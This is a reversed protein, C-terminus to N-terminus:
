KNKKNWILGCRRHHRQLRWERLDVLSLYPENFAPRKPPASTRWNSKDVLRLDPENVIRELFEALEPLVTDDPAHMAIANFDPVEVLNTPQLQANARVNDLLLVRRLDVNEINSLNKVRQRPQGKIGYNELLECNDSTWVFEFEVVHQLMAAFVEYVYVPLGASWLALRYHKAVHVLFSELFPRPFVAFRAVTKLLEIEIVRCTPGMLDLTTATPAVCASVLTEDLDLVLLPKCLPVADVM